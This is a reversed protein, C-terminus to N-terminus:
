ESKGDVSVVAIERASHTMETLVDAFHDPDPYDDDNIYYRKDHYGAAKSYSTRVGIYALKGDLVALLEIDRSEEFRELIETTTHLKTRLGAPNQRLIADRERNESVFGMEGIAVCIIFACIFSVVLGAVSIAAEIRRDDPRWFSTWTIAAIIVALTAVVKIAPILYSKYKSNVHFPDYARKRRNSDNM